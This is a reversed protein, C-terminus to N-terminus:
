SLIEKGKYHGIIEMWTEYEKLDKPTGWQCFYKVDDYVLVDLGDRVLLNYVMSIYYEGNLDQKEDMLQQFYKKM